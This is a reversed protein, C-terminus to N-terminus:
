HRPHSHSTPRADLDLRSHLRPRNPRLPRPLNRNLSSHLGPAPALPEAQAQHSFLNDRSPRSLLRALRYHSLPHLSRLAHATIQNKAALPLSLLIGDNSPAPFCIASEPIRTPRRLLPHPPSLRL